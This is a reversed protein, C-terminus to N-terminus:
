PKVIEDIAADLAQLQEITYDIVPRSTSNVTNVDALLMADRVQAQYRHNMRAYLRLSEPTAWRCLAQIESESSKRDFLACAVFVRKSHFTKHLRRPPPLTAAMVDRLTADINSASWRTRGDTTFLPATPAPAGFTRIYHAVADAFSMPNTSNFLFTMQNPGFRTGDYDAKSPLPVATLYDRCDVVRDLVDLVQPSSVSHPKGDVVLQVDSWIYHVDETGVLESKRSASQDGFTDVMRWGAWFRSDPDYERKGILQGLTLCKMDLNDQVTFPEARVPHAVGFDRLRRRVLGKLMHQLMGSDSFTQGRRVHKRRIHQVVNRVSDVRPAPDSNSRPAMHDWVHLAFGCVFAAERLPHLLSQTGRWMATGLRRCYPAYYKDWASREGSATNPNVGDHIAADVGTIIDRLTAPDAPRFAYEDDTDAWQVVPAALSLGRGRPVAARPLATVRVSGALRTPRKVAVPKSTVNAVVAAAVAVAAVKGILSRRPVGSASTTRVQPGTSRVAEVPCQCLTLLIVWFMVRAPLVRRRLAFMGGGFVLLDSLTSVAFATATTAVYGLLTLIVIGV